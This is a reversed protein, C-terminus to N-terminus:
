SIHKYANTSYFGTPLHYFFFQKVNNQKGTLILNCEIENQLFM